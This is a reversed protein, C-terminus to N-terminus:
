CTQFELPLGVAQTRCRWRNLAPPRPQELVACYVADRKRVTCLVCLLRGKGTEVRDIHTVMDCTVDNADPVWVLM